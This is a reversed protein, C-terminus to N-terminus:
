SAFRRHNLTCTLASENPSGNRQLRGIWLRAYAEGSVELLVDEAAPLPEQWLWEVRLWFGPLAESHYVGERGVFEVEYREEKGMRYFEAWRRLPDLLWYEPVGGAEYEAFKAGRDWDLSEPSVVEVLVTM